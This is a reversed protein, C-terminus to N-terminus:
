NWGTKPSYTAKCIVCSWFEHSHQHDKETECTTRLGLAIAIKDGLEESADWLGKDRRKECSDCLTFIWDGGRRRGPSSCMECTESAKLMAKNIEKRALKSAPPNQYVRLGGIKEKVQGITLDDIKSIEKWLEDLIYFWGNGCTFGRAMPTQWVTMHYGPFLNPYKGVWYLEIRKDM